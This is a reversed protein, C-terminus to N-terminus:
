ESSVCIRSISAQSKAPKAAPPLRTGTDTFIALGGCEICITIDGAVNDATGVGAIGPLGSVDGADLAQDFEHCVGVLEQLNEIRGESEVSRESRLEALYGTRELVAEITHGVGGDAEDTIEDVYGARIQAYADCLVAFAESPEACTITELM